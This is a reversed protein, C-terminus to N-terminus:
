FPLAGFRLSYLVTLYKRIVTILVFFIIDYFTKYPKNGIVNCDNWKFKWIYNAM